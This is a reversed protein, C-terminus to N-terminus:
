MLALVSEAACIKDNLREAREDYEVKLQAAERVLSEKYFFLAEKTVDGIMAVEAAKREAAEKKRQEKLSEGETYTSPKKRSARPLSQHSIGGEILIKRIAEKSVLNLEALIKIQEKKDAAEKYSRVIEENTMQMEITKKM